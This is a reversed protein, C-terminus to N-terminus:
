DGRGSILKFGKVVEFFVELLREAFLAQVVFREAGHGSEVEVIAHLVAVAAHGLTGPISGEAVTAWVARTERSAVMPGPVRMPSNQMMSGSTAIPAFQTM